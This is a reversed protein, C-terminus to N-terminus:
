EGEVKSLFERAEYYDPNGNTEFNVFTYNDDFDYIIGELKSYYNAAREGIFELGHEKCVLYSGDGCRGSYSMNLVACTKKPTSADELEDDYLYCFDCILM